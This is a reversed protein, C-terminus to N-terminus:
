TKRSRIKGAEEVLFADTKNPKPWKPKEAMEQQWVNYRPMGWLYFFLLCLVLVLPLVIKSLKM